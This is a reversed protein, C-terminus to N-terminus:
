SAAEQDLLRDYDTMVPLPREFRSLAGLEVITSRVRGLDATQVLHRIAAADSCGVSLAEEIASRVRQHGYQKILSLVQIM